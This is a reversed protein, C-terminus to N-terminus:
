YLMENHIFFVLPYRTKHPEQNVKECPRSSCVLTIGKGKVKSFCLTLSARKVEWSKVAVSICFIYNLSLSCGWYKSQIKMVSAGAEWICYLVWSTIGINDECWLDNLKFNLNSIISSKRSIWAKIVQFLSIFSSQLQNILCKARKM